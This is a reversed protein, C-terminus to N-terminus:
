KLLFISNPNTARQLSFRTSLKDEGCINATTQVRWGLKGLDQFIIFGIIEHEITIETSILVIEFFSSFLMIYEKYVKLIFIILSKGSDPDMNQPSPISIQPLLYKMTEITRDLKKSGYSIAWPYRKMKFLWVQERSSDVLADKKKDANENENSTNTQTASVCLDKTIPYPWRTKIANRIM